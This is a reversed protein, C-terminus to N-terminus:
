YLVFIQWIIFHKQQMMIMSVMIIMDTTATVLTTCMRVLFIRKTNGLGGSDSGGSFHRCVSNFQAISKAGATDYLQQPM